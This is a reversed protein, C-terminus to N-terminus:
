QPLIITNISVDFREAAENVMEKTVRGRARPHPPADGILIVLRSEATWTFRTLSVYLAEYVAEPIDRGGACRATDIAKQVQDLDIKFPSVKTLYRDSYDRYYVLGIQFFDFKGVLKRITPILEKRITGVDNLMSETTDLAIVLDLTKGTASDIFDTIKQIMDDEGVSYVSKGKGAEAIEKFTDETEPMYNADPPGELVKQTFRMVFPNDMYTGNYDGYPKEFARISVWTGDLVQIEGSRTWSSGYTIIYPIFLHFAEGFYEVKEPTSDILYYGDRGTPLFQGNLIRKEEAITPHANPNKLSYTAIRHDPLESSETLMISNIGPKKRVWLDYGGELSQSIFIDDESLSQDQSFAQIGIFLIIVFVFVFKKM